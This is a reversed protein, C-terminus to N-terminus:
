IPRKKKLREIGLSPFNELFLIKEKISQYLTEEKLNKIPYSNIILNIEEKTYGLELMYEYLM